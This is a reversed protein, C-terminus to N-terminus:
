PKMHILILERPNHIRLPITHEGLGASVVMCQEKKYFDGCCYRPFIRFQSSIAGVHRSFRLVGGHYHGSLTLDSGWQFYTDGYKPNHALLINLSETEPKGILNELCSCTLKPSFPKRYYELPLELGYIQILDEKIQLCKKENKLVPVQIRELFKEYEKYEEYLCHDKVSMKSEHNGMGYFVPYEAALLELFDAARGLSEPETRILMDGTLLVCDPSFAKIAALLDKNKEGFVSGHLDTLFAFRLGDKSKVKSNHIQYTVSCFKEM